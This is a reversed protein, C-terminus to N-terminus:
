KQPHSQEDLPSLRFAIDGEFIQVDWVKTPESEGDWVIWLDFALIRKEVEHIFRLEQHAARKEHEEFIHRAEPPMDLIEVRAVIAGYSEKAM